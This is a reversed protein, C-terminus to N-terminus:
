IYLFVISAIITIAGSVLTAKVSGFLNRQNAPTLTISYYEQNIRNVVIGIVDILVTREILSRMPLMSRMTIDYLEDEDFDQFEKPIKQISYLRNLWDLRFDLSELYQYFDNHSNVTSKLLEIFKRFTQWEIVLRYLAVPLIIYSLFRIFKKMITNM